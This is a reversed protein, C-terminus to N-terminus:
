PCSWARLEQANPIYLPHRPHGAKTTGLCQLEQGATKLLVKAVRQEHGKLVNIHTGWAVVVPGRGAAYALWADNYPGVPDDVQRLGMPDTSRLAYANVVIVGGHDLRRARRECREVTPDNKEADATSPNLMCFVLPPRRPDWIRWLAYRWTECPSFIAGRGVEAPVHPFSAAAAADWYAADAACNACDDGPEEFGCHPCLSPLPPLAGAQEEPTAERVTVWGTASYEAPGSPTDVGADEFVAGSILWWGPDELKEELDLECCFPIADYLEGMQNALDGGAVKRVSRALGSATEHVEVLLHFAYFQNM